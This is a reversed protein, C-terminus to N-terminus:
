SDQLRKSALGRDEILHCLADCNFLQYTRTTIVVDGKKKPVHTTQETITHFFVSQLLLLVSAHFKLFHMVMM